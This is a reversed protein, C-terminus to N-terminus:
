HLLSMAPKLFDPIQGRFVFAIVIGSLVLWCGAKEFLLSYSVHDSLDLSNDIAADEDDSSVEKCSLLSRSSSKSFLNFIAIIVLIINHLQM